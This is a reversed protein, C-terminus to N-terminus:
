RPRTWVGDGNFNPSGAWGCANWVLDIVGKVMPGVQESLNTIVTEPLQLVERDIPEGRGLLYDSVAMECGKVGLLSLLVYVPPAVGMGQQVDLYRRVYQLIREEFLVSPISRRENHRVNLIYADVAEIVGNRYLHVYSVAGELRAAPSTLVGEFTIRSNWGSTSVMPPLEGPERDFRLVDLHRPSTFSELPVLHMVLKGGPQTPIPTRGAYIELLRGERFARVQQAATTSTLFAQRLEVVDLPYKGNSNRGYFKDHGGFVVRHPRVWSEEVRLVLVTAAGHAVARVDHRVRPALGALIISNLRAIEADVNTAQIGPIATPVGGAEAVGYLLDGGSTNAMSSVDALFEKKDSDSGGPLAQKYDITRREAVQNAILSDIDAADIAALPKPIM